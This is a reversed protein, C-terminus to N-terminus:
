HYLLPKTFRRDDTRSRCGAGHELGQFCFPNCQFIETRSACGLGVLSCGAAPFQLTKVSDHDMPGPQVPRPALARSHLHKRVIM